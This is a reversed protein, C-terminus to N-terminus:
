EERLRAIENNRERERWKMGERTNEGNREGGGGDGLLEAEAGAVVVVLGDSDSRWRCAETVQISGGDDV